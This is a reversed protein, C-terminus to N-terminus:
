STLRKRRLVLVLKAFARDFYPRFESDTLRAIVITLLLLVPGLVLVAGLDGLPGLSGMWRVLFYGGTLLPIATLWPRVFALLM